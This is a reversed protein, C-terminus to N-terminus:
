LSDKVNVHIFALLGRDISTHSERLTETTSFGDNAKLTVVTTGVKKAKIKGISDVSVITTDSAWQTNVLYKQAQLHEPYCKVLLQVSDGVEMDMEEGQVFEIKTIPEIQKGNEEDNDNCGAFVLGAIAAFFLKRM